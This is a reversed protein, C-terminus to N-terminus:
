KILDWFLNYIKHLGHSGSHFFSEDVSSLFYNLFHNSFLGGIEQSLLSAVDGGIEGLIHKLLLGVAQEAPCGIGSSVQSSFDGLIQNLVLSLVEQAVGSSLGGIEGILQGLSHNLVFGITEQSVGLSWVESLLHSLRQSLCDLILGIVQNLALGVLQKSVSLQSIIPNSESVIVSFLNNLFLDGLFDSGGFHWDNLLLGNRKRGGRGDILGGDMLFNDGGGLDDSFFGSLLNHSWGGHDLIDSILRNRESVGVGMDGGSHIIDHVLGLKRGETVDVTVVGMHIVMVPCEVPRNQLSVNHLGVNPEFGFPVSHVFNGQFHAIVSGVLSFLHNGSVVSQEMTNGASLYHGWHNGLYNNWLDLFLYYGFHDGMRWFYDFPSEHLGQHDSPASVLEVVHVVRRSVEESVFVMDIPLYYHLLAM